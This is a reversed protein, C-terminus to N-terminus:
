VWTLLCGGFSLGAGFSCLLLKQGARVKGEKAAQALVLPLSAASTNGFRDLNVLCREMGLGLRECIAQLMRMNAQHPVFWDVEDLTVGARNVVQRALEPVREVARRFVEKGEMKLYHERREVTGADAPRASGGAPIIITKWGDPESEFHYALVQGRQAARVLVAAAGDGFLICTNRDQYDMIRTMTEACVLLVNQLGARAVLGEAVALGYVFGCCAAQLDFAIGRQVGIKQQIVSATSPMQYDPTCTAVVVGDVQDPSAGARDLCLRAAAAGLDSTTEKESVVRREVIGTRRRIWEDSTDVRQELEANTLIREPVYASLGVLVSGGAATGAM